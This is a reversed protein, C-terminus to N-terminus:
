VIMNLRTTVVPEPVDGDLTFDSAKFAGSGSEICMKPVQRSTDLSTTNRIQHAAWFHDEYIHVDGGIWTLSGVNLSTERALWMLLAWYQIWNHQVGILFDASRQYMTMDLMGRDVFVQIVTGHCNTIPTDPHAMESTEWTTIVNRRSQPHKKIGDLLYRIQDICHIGFSRFQVSYNAEIIGEENTWPRWWHRVSEHLDEIDNSGSLFWEMERLANRWATKRITVLPTQWFTVMQNTLRLVNSNRTTIPRGFELIRSTTNKFYNDASM